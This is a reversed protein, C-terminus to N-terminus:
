KRIIDANEGAGGEAGDRGHSLVKFADAEPDAEYLFPRGWPDVLGAEDKLYPGRWMPMNEPKTLLIKLGEEKSPYRGFDIFFLDIASALNSAQTTAIDAKSRGLYGVVRPAVLTAIFALIALVILLEFLTLGRRRYQPRRRRQPMAM